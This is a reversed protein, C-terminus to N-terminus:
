SELVIFFTSRDRSLHQSPSHVQRRAIVVILYQQDPHGARHILMNESPRLGYELITVKMLVFVYGRTGLLNLYAPASASGCSV